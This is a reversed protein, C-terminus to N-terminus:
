IFQPKVVSCFTTDGGITVDNPLSVVAVLANNVTSSVCSYNSQQYPYIGAATYLGPFDLVAGPLTEM